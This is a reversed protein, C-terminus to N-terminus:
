TCFYIETEKQREERPSVQSLFVAEVWVKGDGQGRLLKAEGGCQNGGPVQSSTPPPQLPLTLFPFEPSLQRAARRQSYNGQVQGSLESCTASSAASSFDRTRGRTWAQALVKALTRGLVYIQPMFSGARSSFGNREKERRCCSAKKEREKQRHTM